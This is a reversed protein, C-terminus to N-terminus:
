PARKPKAPPGSEPQAMVTGIPVVRGVSAGVAGPALSAPAEELAKPGAVRLLHERQEVVRHEADEAAAEYSSIRDLEDAGQARLIIASALPEAEEVAALALAMRAGDADDQPPMDIGAGPEFELGTVQSDLPVGNKILARAQQLDSRLVSGEQSILRVCTVWERNERPDERDLADMHARLARVNKSGNILNRVLQSPAPRGTLRGHYELGPRKSAAGAAGPLLLLLALLGRMGPTYGRPGRGALALAM